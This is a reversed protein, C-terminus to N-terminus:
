VMIHERAPAGIAAPGAGHIPDGVSIVGCSLIRARLGGRHALGRLLQRHAEGKVLSVCPECLGAGWLRVNGVRFERGVLENLAVGRTVVNRRSDSPHVDLGLEGRLHEVVEIEILTLETIERGPTSDASFTGRGAYYRDGELGHGPVALAESRQLMASGRDSATYISVVRGRGASM